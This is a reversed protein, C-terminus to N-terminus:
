EFVGSCSGVAEKLPIIGFMVVDSQCGHLGSRDVVSEGHGYLGGSLGNEVLGVVILGFAKCRVVWPRFAAWDAQILLGFAYGSHRSVAVDPAFRDCDM